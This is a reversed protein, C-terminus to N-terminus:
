LINLLIISELANKIINEKVKDYDIDDINKNTKNQLANTDEVPRVSMEVVCRSHSIATYIIADTNWSTKFPVIDHNKSYFSSKILDEIVEIHGANSNVMAHDCIIKPDKLLFHFALNKDLYGRPVIFNAIAGYQNDMKTPPIKIGNTLFVSYPFTKHSILVNNLHNESKLEIQKYPIRNSYNIM